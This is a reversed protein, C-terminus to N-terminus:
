VEYDFVVLIKWEIKLDVKEYNSELLIFFLWDIIVGFIDVIM